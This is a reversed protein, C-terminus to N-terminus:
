AYFSQFSVLLSTENDHYDDANVQLKGGNGGFEIPADLKCELVKLDDVIQKVASPFPSVPGWRRWEEVSIIGDDCGEFERPQSRLNSSTM